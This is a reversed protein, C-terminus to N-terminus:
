QTPTRGVSIRARAPVSDRKSPTPLPKDGTKDNQVHLAELRKLFEDDVDEADEGGAIREDLERELLQDLEKELLDDDLTTDTPAIPQGIARQVEDGREVTESIDDMLQEVKEPTYRANAEELAKKGSSLLSVIAQTEDAMELSHKITELQDLQKGVSAARREVLKSKRLCRLAAQRRKDILCQKASLRLEDQEEELKEIQDTFRSISRNLKLLSRDKETIGLQEGEGHPSLVAATQTLAPGFKILMHGPTDLGDIAVDGQRHLQRLIIATSRGNGLLVSVQEAFVEYSVVPSPCSLENTREGFLEGNKIAQRVKGVADDLGEVFVFETADDVDDSEDTRSLSAPESSWSDSLQRKLVSFGWGVPARVLKDFSWGLWSQDRMLQKLPVILRRNQMEIIVRRLCRPKRGQRLFKSELAVPTFTLEREYKLCKACHSIWLEMKDHWATPNREYGVFKHFLMDMRNDDNWCDPLYPRTNLLEQAQGGIPSGSSSFM